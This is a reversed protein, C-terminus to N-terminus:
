SGTSSTRAREHKPLSGISGAWSIQDSVWVHDVPIVCDPEDFTAVTVDIEASDGGSMFTLCSGCSPCFSRLRNEWVLVRPQGHIFRFDPKAFSAWTVFAAGASKRCDSCHCHTVNYPKGSAEYRVAGCLCGGRIPEDKM